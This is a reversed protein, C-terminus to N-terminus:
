NTPASQIIVLCHIKKIFIGEYAISENSHEGVSGIINFFKNELDKEWQFLGRRWHFLWEWVRNTWTGMGDVIEEKCASIQFLRSFSKNLAGM